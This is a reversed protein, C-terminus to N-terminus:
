KSQHNIIVKLNLVKEPSTNFPSLYNAVTRSRILHSLSSFVLFCWFSKLSPVRRTTHSHTLSHFHHYPKPGNSLNSECNRNCLSFLVERQESRRCFTEGHFMKRREATRLSAFVVPFFINYFYENRYISWFSYSDGRLELESSGYTSNAYEHPRTRAKM